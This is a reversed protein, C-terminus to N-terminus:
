ISADRNIPLCRLTWHSSSLDMFIEVGTIFTLLIVSTSGLACELIGCHVEIGYYGPLLPFASIGFM